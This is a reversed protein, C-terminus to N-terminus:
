IVSSGNLSGFDQLNRFDSSRLHFRHGSFGVESSLGDRGLEFTGQLGDFLQAGAQLAHFSGAAFPAIGRGDRHDPHGAAEGAPGIRRLIKPARQYVPHISDAGRRRIAPICVQQKVGIGFGRTLHGGAPASEDGLHILEVGGEEADRRAFGGAHVGLLAQQQFHGPFTKFIGPQGGFFQLAAAGAHKYTNVAVAAIIEQQLREVGVFHVNVGAGAGRV